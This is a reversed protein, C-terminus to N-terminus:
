SWSAALGFAQTSMEQPAALPNSHLKGPADLKEPNEKM